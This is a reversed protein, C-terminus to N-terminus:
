SGFCRATIKKSKGKKELATTLLYDIQLGYEWYDWGREIAFNSLYTTASPPLNVEMSGALVAKMHEEDEM